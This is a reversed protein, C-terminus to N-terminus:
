KRLRRWAHALLLRVVVVVLLITLGSIVGLAIIMPRTRTM